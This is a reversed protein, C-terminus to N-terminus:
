GRSASIVAACAQLRKELFRRETPNRALSHAAAFWHQAATTNGLQLELDGVAAPYFPYRELRERDAIARLEVLGREPGDRQAIAIARNLAVVPSPAIRLLRDYLSVIGNWDTAALNPAAAHTAAIASEIHFPTLDEGAASQEFLTLGRGLLEADWRSRDQEFLPNLDGATDIRAPLRAANLYMLAALARTEPVNAPGYDLLLEVLRMAESCLEVRVASEASAGHYGENFLLYLAQRVASLREAFETDTLEFLRKTNTLV